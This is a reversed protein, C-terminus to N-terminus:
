QWGQERLYEVLAPDDATMPRLYDGVRERTWWAGSRDGIRTFHYEYLDARIARPAREHFPGPALLSLAGRDGRLLQYM